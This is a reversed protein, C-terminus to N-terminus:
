GSPVELDLLYDTLQDGVAGLADDEAVLTFERLPSDILAYRETTHRGKRVTYVARFVRNTLDRGLGPDVVSPQAFHRVRKRYDFRHEIRRMRIQDGEDTILRPLLGRRHATAQLQDPLQEGPALLLQQLRPKKV